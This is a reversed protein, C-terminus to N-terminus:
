RMYYRFLLWSVYAILIILIPLVIVFTRRAGAILKASGAQIEEARDQIREAREAQKRVLGFQERQLALAEAQRELQIKQNDRIEELVRILRQLEPDNM